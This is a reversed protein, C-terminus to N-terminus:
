KRGKQSNPLNHNFAPDAESVFCEEVRAKFADASEGLLRSVDDRVKGRLLIAVQPDPLVEPDKSMACLYICNPQVAASLGSENEIKKLRTLLTM